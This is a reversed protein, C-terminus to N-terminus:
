GLFHLRELFSSLRLRYRRPQELHSASRSCISNVGGASHTPIFASKFSLRSFDHNVPMKIMLFQAKRGNVIYDSTALALVPLVQTQRSQGVRYIQFFDLPYAARTDGVRVRLAMM